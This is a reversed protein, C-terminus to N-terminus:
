NIIAILGKVIKTLSALKGQTPKTQKVINESRKSEDKKLNHYKMQLIDSLHHRFRSRDTPNALTNMCRVVKVIKDRSERIEITVIIDKM